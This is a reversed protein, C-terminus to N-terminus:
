RSLLERWKREISKGDFLGLDYLLNGWSEGSKYRRYFTIPESGAVRSLFVTLILEKNTLGQERLAQLQAITFQLSESLVVDIVAAALPGPRDVNGMVTPKLRGGIRLEAVTQKWDGKETYTREVVSRQVGGQRALEHTIWLGDGDAGSMKGRVLSKKSIEFFVALLSNQTTALFYPDAAHSKQPLYQRDQFCHCSATQVAFSHSFLSGSLLTILILTRM